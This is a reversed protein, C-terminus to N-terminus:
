PRRKTTRPPATELTDVRRGWHRIAKHVLDFGEERETKADKFGQEMKQTLSTLSDWVNRSFKKTEVAVDEVIVLQREIGTLRTEVGSLRTQVGSLRTDVTSLRDKVEGLDKEVGGLRRDMGGVTNTLTDIKGELREFSGGSTAQDNDM